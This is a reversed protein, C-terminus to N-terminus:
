KKNNKVKFYGKYYSVLAQFKPYPDKVYLKNNQYRWGKWRDKITEILIQTVFHVLEPDNIHADSPIVTVNPNTLDINEMIGKWLMMDSHPNWWPITTQVLKGNKIKQCYVGSSNPLLPDQDYASFGRIPIIIIVPAEADNVREAILKGSQYMERENARMLTVMGKSHEYFLRKRYKYPITNPPGFVIQDLGGPLIIHPIKREIAARLRLKGEHSAILIGGAIEDVIEHTTLDYVAVVREEGRVFEEMIYGGSLGVAHFSIVEFENELISKGMLLHQTTTGFQTAVIIPKRPIKVSKAKLEGMIAAAAQNLVTAEITNITNGGSIDSVSWWIKIDSGATKSSVEQPLTTILYKPIFLPLSKLIKIGMGTGVSGGFAIVGDVKKERLLNNLIKVAGKIMIEQAEIRNKRSVEEITSGGEQAVAHNPIDPSVISSTYKKLSIDILIPMGAYLKIREKLYRAEIGKTDFTGIICVRTGGIKM